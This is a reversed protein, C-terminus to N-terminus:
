SLPSKSVTNRRGTMRLASCVLRRASKTSRGAQDRHMLLVPPAKGPGHDPGREQDDDGDRNASGHEARLEGPAVRDIDPGTEGPHDGHGQQQQLGQQRAPIQGVQGYRLTAARMAPDPRAQGRGNKQM